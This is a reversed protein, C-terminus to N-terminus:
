KTAAKKADAEAKADAKSRNDAKAATDAKEKEAAKSAVERAKQADAQRAEYVMKAQSAALEAQDAVIDLDQAGPEFVAGHANILEHGHHDPVDFAGTEDPLYTSGELSLEVHGKPLRIRM